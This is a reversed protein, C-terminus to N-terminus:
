KFAFYERGSQTNVEAGEHGRGRQHETVKPCCQLEAWVRSARFQGCDSNDFIYLSTFVGTNEDSNSQTLSPSLGRIDRWVGWVQEGSLNHTGRSTEHSM